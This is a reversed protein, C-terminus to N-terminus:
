MVETQTKSFPKEVNALAGHLAEEIEDKEANPRNFQVLVKYPKQQPAFTYKFNQPRGKSTKGKHVEARIEKATKGQTVEQWLHEPDDSKTLQLLHEKSTNTEDAEQLIAEPLTLIKLIRSIYPQSKGILNAIATQTWNNELLTTYSKAEEVPSIEERQVNEIIQLILAEQDTLDKTICPMETLGAILAAKYRREGTVIMYRGDKFRVSVPEIIGKTRITAALEELKQQDFHKRPQNPDPIIDGIPILRANNMGRTRSRTSTATEELALPAVKFDEKISEMFNRKTM